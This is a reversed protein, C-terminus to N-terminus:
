KRSISNFTCVTVTHKCAKAARQNTLAPSFSFSLQNSRSRDGFSNPLLLLLQEIVEEEKEEKEKASGKMKRERARNRAEILLNLQQESIM